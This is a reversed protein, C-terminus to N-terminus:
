QDGRPDVWILLLLGLALLPVLPLIGLQASGTAATAATIMAPALFTTAKGSLGYLGLAEAARDPDAHYVM